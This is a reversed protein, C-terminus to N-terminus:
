LRADIDGMAKELIATVDAGKIDLNEAKFYLIEPIGYFFSSLAKIYEYGPNHDTVPGGATTVYIIRRAKCLGVAKGEDSYRFTLGSITIHELYVRLLSPFALDWYPAAIIIEDAEVFQNAYKFMPASFNGTSVLYDRKQLEDWNLPVLNEQCLNIEDIIGDSKELVKQALLYTRSCPRICSNIFLIKKM